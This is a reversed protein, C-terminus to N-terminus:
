SDKNIQKCEHLTLANEYVLICQAYGLWRNAKESEIYGSEIGTLLWKAHERGQGSPSREPAMELNAAIITKAAAIKLNM